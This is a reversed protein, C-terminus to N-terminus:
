KKRISKERPSLSCFLKKSNRDITCKRAGMKKSLSWNQSDSGKLLLSGINVINVNEEEESVKVM